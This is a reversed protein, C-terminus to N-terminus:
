NIKNIKLRLDPTKDNKPSIFIEEPESQAYVNNFNVAGYWGELDVNSTGGIESVINGKCQNILLGIFNIKRLSADVIDIQSNLLMAPSFGSIVSNKLTLISSSDGVYVGERVLGDIGGGAPLENLFTMNSANVNTPKKSFDANESLDYSDIELCRSGSISSILPNRLALCNQLNAQIGQTFDFDDDKARYSLLNSATVAGGYFEFSDDGSFSSQVYEVKTKNGVGAFSIANFEKFGQSTKGAFEVRVYKLIGANNEINTGGFTRFEPEIDFKLNATSGFTNMPADGMIVLGGWDGANRESIAKSSTFVIPNTPTGEAIIKSGKTIILAATTDYDGRIVTGPEITLIANNTVYVKGQLLYTDTNSLTYNTTIKGYLIKTTESYDVKKPKFNTWGLLWNSTGIIGKEQQSFVFNHVFSLVFFLILAKKM